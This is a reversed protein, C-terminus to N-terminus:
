VTDHRVDNLESSSQWKSKIASAHFLLNYSVITTEILAIATLLSDAHIQPKTQGQLLASLDPKVAIFTAIFVLALLIVFVLLM